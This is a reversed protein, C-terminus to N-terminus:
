PVMKLSLLCDRAAKIPVFVDMDFLGSNRRGSILYDVHIPQQSLYTALTHSRSLHGNGTGQIGYLVRM